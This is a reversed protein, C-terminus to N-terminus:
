FHGPNPAQVDPRLTATCVENFEGRTIDLLAAYM